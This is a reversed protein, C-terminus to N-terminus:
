AGDGGNRSEVSHALSQSGQANPMRFENEDHEPAAARLYAAIDRYVKGADVTKAERLYYEAWELPTGNWARDKIDLAAGAQVLVKVAALAGSSVAHHLATAHTYIETSYANLDVGLAILKALAQAKGRLACLVLAVQKDRATATRALQTVAEWRELCLATALTLEAGRAVLHAAAALNGNILADHTITDHLTAGADILADLLENQVECKRAVWSWAALRVAYDLQEALTDEAERQAAQIIARAAHAINKPLTNNRVPDEAVFWLLYPRQFFDELANGVKARLWEGPADLRERVLRPHAALLHSLANVNGTDLATVAEHFLADLTPTNQM